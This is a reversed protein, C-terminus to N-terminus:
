AQYPGYMHVVGCLQNTVQRQDIMILRCKINSSCALVHPARSLPEGHRTNIKLFALPAHRQLKNISMDCTTDLFYDQRMDFKLFPCTARDM